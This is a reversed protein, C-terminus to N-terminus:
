GRRYRGGGRAYRRENERSERMMQEFLTEELSNEEEEGEQLMYRPDLLGHYMARLCYAAIFLTSIIDDPIKKVGPGSERYVRAQHWLGEIYPWAFLEDGAFMKFLTKALGKVGGALSIPWLQYGYFDASEAFASQSSTADYAGMCCFMDMQERMHSKWPEYKGEGDIWHFAALSAPNDPFTTVDFTMVVPVNNLGMKIPSATGPDGFVIYAHEAKYPIQWHIVGMGDRHQCLAGPNEDFIYKEMMADLSKDHCGSILIRPIESGVSLSARSGRLWRDEDAKNQLFEKQLDLQDETIAVNSESFPEAYFYLGDPNTEWEEKAREALRDLSPNDHPNTSFGLKGARARGNAREGRLRTVLRIAAEDIGEVLGAEDIHIEDKEDGLLFNGHEGITFCAFTSKYEGVRVTLIPYPRTKFLNKNRPRIVFKEYPTGTVWKGVERFMDTAQRATPAVNLFDYAEILACYSLAIVCRSSTKGSGTGGCVVTIKKGSTVMEYAWPSLLFGHHHLFIPTTGEWLVKLAIDNGDIIVPLETDPKGAQQWADFLLPYEKPRSAESFKTGSYPLVFYHNTFVNLDGTKITREFIEIDTKTLEL